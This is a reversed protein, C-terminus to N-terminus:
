RGIKANYEERYDTDNRMEEVMTEFAERTAHAKCGEHLLIALGDKFRAGAKVTEWFYRHAIRKIGIENYLAVNVRLRADRFMQRLDLKGVQIKTEAISGTGGFLKQLQLRWSLPSAKAEAIQHAAQINAGLAAMTIGTTLAKPWLPSKYGDPDELTSKYVQELFSTLATMILPGNVGTVGLQFARWMGASYTAIYEAADGARRKGEEWLMGTETKLAFFGEDRTVQMGDVVLNKHHDSVSAFRRESIYWPDNEIEVYRSELRELVNLSPRDCLSLKIRSQREIDEYETLTRLENKDLPRVHNDLSLMRLRHYREYENIEINLVCAIDFSLTAEKGYNKSRTARILESELGEIGWINIIENSELRDFAEIFMKQLRDLKQYDNNGPISEAKHASLNTFDLFESESIDLARAIISLNESVSIFQQNNFYMQVPADGKEEDHGNMGDAGEIAANRNRQANPVSKKKEVEHILESLLEEDSFRTSLMGFSKSLIDSDWGTHRASRRKAASAFALNLKEQLDPQDLFNIGLMKTEFEAHLNQLTTQEQDTLKGDADNRFLEVLQEISKLDLAAVQHVDRLLGAFSDIEPMQITGTVIHALKGKRVAVDLQNRKEDVRHKILTFDEDHKRRSLLNRYEKYDAPRMGLVDAIQQAVETVYSTMLSQLNLVRVERPTRMMKRIIQDDGHHDTGSLPRSMIELAFFANQLKKQDAPAVFRQMVIQGLGVGLQIYMGLRPDKKLFSAWGAAFNGFVKVTQFLSQLQLGEIYARHLQARAIYHKVGNNEVKNKEVIELLSKCKKRNEATNANELEILQAKLNTIADFEGKLEEHIKTYSPTNISKLEDAIFPSGDFEADQIPTCHLLTRANCAVGVCSALLVSAFYGASMKLQFPLNKINEPQTKIYTFALPLFAILSGVVNRYSYVAGGREFGRDLKEQKVGHMDLLCKQAADMQGIDKTELMNKQIHYFKAKLNADIARNEEAIFEESLAILEQMSPINPSITAPYALNEEDGM